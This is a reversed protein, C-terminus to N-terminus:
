NQTRPKPKAPTAPKRPTNSPQRSRATPNATGDTVILPIMPKQVPQGFITVFDILLEAQGVAANRPITVALQRKAADFEHALRAGEFKVVISDERIRNLDAGWGGRRSLGDDLGIMVTQGARVRGDAPDNLEVSPLGAQAWRALGLFVGYAERRNYLPDRLRREEIENTYFSSEILVAPVRSLRLVAFGPKHPGPYQVLDSLLACAIHNELRLADNLGNLVYRGAAQSAPSTDAGNHYFVTTYNATEADAANHHVSIFLSARANTAVEARARFDESDELGLERDEDRTLIAKAGAAELFERLYRSVRLNVEAERLGNKSRKFNAGRDKQGVHGPDIVIVIDRLFKAYPPIPFEAVPLQSWAFAGPAARLPDPGSAHHAIRGTSTLFWWAGGVGASLSAVAVLSLALWHAAFLRLERVLASRKNRRPKAAM